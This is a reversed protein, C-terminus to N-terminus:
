RILLTDEVYRETVDPSVKESVAKLTANEWGMGPLGAWAAGEGLSAENNQGRM